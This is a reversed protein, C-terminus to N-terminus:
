KKIIQEKSSTGMIVRISSPRPPPPPAAPPPAAARPRGTPAPRPEAVAVGMLGAVRAGSTVVQETDMPNRLALTVQGQSTALTLREADAPTLALTVLPPNTAPKGERAQNTDTSPGTSLVLVNSLVVKSIMETGPRFTVIVDVHSGPLTYGAVSIVDNVRVAIGRMGAPVAPALGAGMGKAALKSEIIPENEVLAVTVGRWLVAERKEFGGAVPADAPWGTVRIMDHAIAVGVPLPRAAVVVFRSAIPVREVPRTQIARYVGYAAGTALVAALGVVILARTRRDM